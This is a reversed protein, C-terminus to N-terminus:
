FRFVLTAMLVINAALLMAATPIQVRIVAYRPLDLLAAPVLNFNAAMPTTLTGCFGSLMGIAAMITVDGHFKQVILPLGIAATMVPFAAFANGMVVTFLATGVCYACVAAIPSGLPLYSTALVGVEKGVGAAAFVAGLSALMQPLVMAWGVTDSLRRGEELPALLPPRMWLMAVALAVIIGVGLCIITVQQPDVLGSNKLALTGFLAVAPIILAIGFLGNGYRAASIEREERSTTPPSSPGIFNFGGAIVLAVVLLGNQFDTMHSGLLFSASFLAWFAANGIRKRNGRDCASLVAIGAFVLGAFIYLYELTIM